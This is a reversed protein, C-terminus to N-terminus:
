TSSILYLAHLMGPVWGLITLGLNVGFEKKAGKKLYVALPPMILSSLYLVGQSVIQTAM